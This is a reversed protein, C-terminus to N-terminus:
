TKEIFSSVGGIPPTERLREASQIIIMVAQFKFDLSKKGKFIHNLFIGREAGVGDESLFEGM